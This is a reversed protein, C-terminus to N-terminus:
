CFSSPSVAHSLPIVTHVLGKAAGVVTKKNFMDASRVQVGAHKRLLQVTRAWSGGRLHEGGADRELKEWCDCLSRELFRTEREGELEYRLSYLLVLRVKELWEVGRDEVLTEVRNFAETLGETCALEQELESQDLLGRKEVM